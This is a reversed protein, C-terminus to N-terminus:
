FPSILAMDLNNVWFAVDSVFYKFLRHWKGVVRVRSNWKSWGDGYGLISLWARRQRLIKNPGKKFRRSIRIDSSSTPHDTLWLPHQSYTALLPMRGHDWQGYEWKYCKKSWDSWLNTIPGSSFFMAHSILQLGCDTILLTLGQSHAVVSFASVETLFLHTLSIYISLSCQGVEEHPSLGDMTKSKKDNCRPGPM